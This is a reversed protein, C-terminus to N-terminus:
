CYGGHHANGQINDVKDKLKSIEKAMLTILKDKLDEYQKEFVQAMKTEVLEMISEKTPLGDESAKGKRPRGGPPM